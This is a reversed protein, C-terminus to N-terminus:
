PAARAQTLFTQPNVPRGNKHVEFHVHPGTSRGTSGAKAIVQGARVIDGEKVTFASNHGYVTVYGNQHDIEVVNGFGSQWGAFKVLGNGASRVPDGINAEFDIGNHHARGGLVPHMRYGFGSTVYGDTPRTTPQSKQELEREFLMSELVSLQQSSIEFEAQIQKLSDNLEAKNVNGAEEDGGSGPLREFDFENGSLKGDRSLRIGLANLRNAQAQLEALRLAMANMDRQSAAQIDAIQQNQKAVQAKLSHLQMNGIGANAMFGLGFVTLVALLSGSAFFWATKRDALNIKKPARLHKSVVIINFM